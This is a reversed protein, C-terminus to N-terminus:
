FGLKIQKIMIKIEAILLLTFLTAFLAISLKVNSSSLDTAAVSVPMLNQIAWPQRGVEAAIWGAECAIFGLPLSFLCVWLFWGKNSLQKKYILYISYFMLLIVFGCIYVMVHFAYFPYKVPPVIDEPKDLFGYGFNSMNAKIIEGQEKMKASNNNDKAIQFEKLANIALKGSAIRENASPIGKEKNGYVLDEIGPVFSNFKRNALIGLLHPISIEYKIPEENNNITKKDNLIGFVMLPPNEKGKYLGEMAALKMPQKQAVEHASNDGSVFTLSISIIGFCAGVIFSKKALEVDKKKILFWASVGMVFLAGTVFGGLTTHIFKTVAFTNFAVEFFDSMENRAKAPDFTTGVPNQMWANAVLIWLASLNSGIAVLWTSILHFKKSVKDWGFFMVAFFTAEMFFALLGEIALPAGFIDGVFWSYNAWNTGFQFEMIIGTAVGIAFNIGFLKIWFKTIKKWKESGTKYYITEMYAIIFSLGLTLPVFLYHYLATLAFQARSCLVFSAENM